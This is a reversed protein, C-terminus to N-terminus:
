RLSRSVGRKIDRAVQNRLATRSAAYGREFMKRGKVTKTMLPTYVKPEPQLDYKGRSTVIFTGGKEWMQILSGWAPQHKDLTSRVQQNGRAVVVWSFGIKANIRFTDGYDAFIVGGRKVINIPEEALAIQVWRQQGSKLFRGQSFTGILGKGPAIGQSLETQEENPTPALAVINKKVIQEMGLRLSQQGIKETLSLIKALKNAGQQSLGKFKITIAM